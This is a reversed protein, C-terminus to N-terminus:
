GSSPQFLSPHEIIDSSWVVVMEQQLISRSLNFNVITCSVIVPFLTLLQPQRM